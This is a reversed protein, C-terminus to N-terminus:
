SRLPGEHGAHDGTPGASATQGDRRAVAGTGGGVARALAEEGGPLGEEAARQVALPDEVQVGAGAGDAQLREAPAGPM